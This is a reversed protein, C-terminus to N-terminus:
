MMKLKMKLIELIIENEPKCLQMQYLIRKLIKKLWKGLIDIYSLEKVVWAIMNMSLFVCMWFLAHLRKRKFIFM